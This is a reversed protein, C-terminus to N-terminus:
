DQNYCDKNKQLQLFVLLQLLLYKKLMILLLLLAKCFLMFLLKAM